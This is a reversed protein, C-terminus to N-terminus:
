SQSFLNWFTSCITRKPKTNINTILLHIFIHLWQLSTFLRKTITLSTLCSHMATHICQATTKIDFQKYARLNKGNNVLEHRGTCRRSCPAYLNQWHILISSPQYRKSNLSTILKTSLKVANHKVTIMTTWAHSNTQNTLLPRYNDADNAM